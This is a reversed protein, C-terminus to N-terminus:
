FEKATRRLFESANRAVTAGDPKFDFVEVSLWGRYELDRLANLVPAFAFDGSGPYRGDLENLHVHRIRSFYKRILEPHPVTEATTNHTDFMTQVARSGTRDAIAVAEALTNVVNCLHPALPEMLITVGKREAHAAVRTLGAVLHEIAAEPTVGDIAQRQKSSGLVMVPADGLDAALDILRDFYDWSRARVTEDSTTLHLGKPAKLFSHLGVFDVGHEAMTKRLVKREASPLGAPDDSLNSPDIELGAYGTERTLRCIEAFTAGPFTESCIAWRFRTSAALPSALMAAM